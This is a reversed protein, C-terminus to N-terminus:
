ISKKHLNETLGGYDGPIRHNQWHPAVMKATGM